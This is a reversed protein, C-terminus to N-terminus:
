VTMEEPKCAANDILYQCVRNRRKSAAEHQDALTDVAAELADEYTHYPTAKGEDYHSGFFWAPRMVGNRTTGEWFARENRWIRTNEALFRAMPQIPAPAPAFESEGYDVPPAVMVFWESAKDNLEQVLFRLGRRRITYIHNQANVTEISPRVSPPPDAHTLMVAGALRGNPNGSTDYSESYTPTGCIEWGLELYANVIEDFPLEEAVKPMIHANITMTIM